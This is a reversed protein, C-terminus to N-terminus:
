AAAGRSRADITAPSPLPERRALALLLDAVAGAAGRRGQERSAARMAAVRVPDDLIAVGALLAARDFDADDVLSAAGTAALREANGRQHGGAHPYPV